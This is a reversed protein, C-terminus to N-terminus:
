SKWTLDTLKHKFSPTLFYLFMKFVRLIIDYISISLYAPIAKVKHGRPPVTVTKITECMPTVCTFHQVVSYGGNFLAYDM